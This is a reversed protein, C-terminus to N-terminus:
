TEFHPDAAQHKVLAISLEGHGTMVQDTCLALFAPRLKFGNQVSM